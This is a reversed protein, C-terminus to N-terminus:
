HDDDGGEFESLDIHWNEIRGDGDITMIVYDGYGADGPCMIKPVYGDISVIKQMSADLLAYKGDDCVKYHVEAVTGKPWGVIVGTDIEILPSWTEMNRCPILEGDVDEVGNVTADEWYRVGCDARLYKADHETATKITIKAM